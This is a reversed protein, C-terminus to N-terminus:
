KEEWKGSYPDFTPENDTMEKEEKPQTLIHDIAKDYKEEVVKKFNTFEETLNEPIELESLKTEIHTIYDETIKKSAKDIAENVLKTIEEPTM